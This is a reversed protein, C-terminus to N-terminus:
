SPKFIAKPSAGNEITLSLFTTRLAHLDVSGGPFAGEIKANKCVVYFRELLTNRHPNRDKVISAM